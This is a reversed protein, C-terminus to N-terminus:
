SQSTPGGPWILATAEALDGVFDSSLRFLVPDVRSAVLERVVAPKVHKFDLDGTLVALGLGRDPDPARAFYDILLTLKASRGPSYLLRELLDAFPKM